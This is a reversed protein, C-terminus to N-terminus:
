SNERLWSDTRWADPALLEAKLADMAGDGGTAPSRTAASAVRAAKKKQRSQTKQAANVEEVEAAGARKVWHYLAEAAEQKQALTGNHLQEAIARPFGLTQEETANLLVDTVDPYQGSLNGVAAAFEQAARQEQAYTQAPAIQTQLAAMEVQREFRSAERPAEEFWADMAQDYVDQFGNEYAWQAVAGANEIIADEIESASYTPSPQADMRSQLEEVIKRLDGLESGQRGIVKQANVAVKLANEISGHAQIYEQIEADFQADDEEDEEGEGAEDETDLDDETEDPDTDEVEDVVEEVEELAETPEEEDETMKAAMAADFDFESM